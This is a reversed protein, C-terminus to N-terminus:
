LSVKQGSTLTNSYTRMGDFQNERIYNDTVPGAPKNNEGIFKLIESIPTNRQIDTQQKVECALQLGRLADNETAAVYNDGYQRRYFNRKILERDDSNFSYDTLNTFQNMLSDLKHQICFNVDPCSKIFKEIARSSANCSDNYLGVNYCMNANILNEAALHYNQIKIEQEDTKIEYVYAPPNYIRNQDNFM